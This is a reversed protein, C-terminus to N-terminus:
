NVVGVQGRRKEVKLDDIEMEGGLRRGFGFGVECEYGCFTTLM